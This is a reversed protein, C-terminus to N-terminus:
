PTRIAGQEFVPHAACEYGYTGFSPFRVTRSNGFNPSLTMERPGCVQRLPHLSFSGSFTVDQTTTVRMCKPSYGSSDFTVTRNASTATRDDFTTCNAPFGTCPPPECRNSANCVWPVGSVMCESSDCCGGVAPVCFTSCAREGQPCGVDFTTSGADLGGGNATVTVRGPTADQPFVTLESTNAPLVWTGPAVACTGDEFLLMTSSSSALSFTVDTSSTTAAGCGDLMRVKLSTTPCEGTILAGPSVLVWQAPGGCGGDSSTLGADDAGADDAGADTATSGGDLSLGADASTATCAGGDCFRAYAGDFDFCASLATLLLVLLPVRM